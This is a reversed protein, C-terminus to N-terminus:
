KSKSVKGLIAKLTCYTSQVAGFGEFFYAISQINSGEFDLIANTGANEKIFHNLMLYHARKKRGENTASNFLLYWRNKHKTILATALKERGSSYVSLIKSEGEKEISSVLLQMDSWIRQKLHTTKVSLNEKTFEILESYSREEEIHLEKNLASNINKKHNKSFGSHLEDYGKSLDLEFNINVGKFQKGALHSTVIRMNVYLYNKLLYKFFQEEVEKTVGKGIVNFKQIYNPQILYKLGYKRKVPLPFIFEYDGAVLAEWGPAVADLYWSTSYLLGNPANEICIDWHTKNIDTHKLREIKM